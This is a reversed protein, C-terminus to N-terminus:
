PPANPKALASPEKCTFASTLASKTCAPKAPKTLVILWSHFAPSSETKQRITSKDLLNAASLAAVIMLSSNSSISVAVM